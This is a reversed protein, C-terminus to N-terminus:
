DEKLTPCDTSHPTVIRTNGEMAKVLRGQPIGNEIVFEQDGCLPCRRIQYGEQIVSYPGVPGTGELAELASSLGHAVREGSLGLEDAAAWGDRFAQLVEPRNLLDRLTTM